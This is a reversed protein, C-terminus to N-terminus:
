WCREPWYIAKSSLLRSRNLAEVVGDGLMLAEGYVSYQDAYDQRANFEHDTLNDQRIINDFYLGGTPAM